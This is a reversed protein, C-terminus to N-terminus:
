FRIEPVAESFGMGSPLPWHSDGQGKGGHRFAEGPFATGFIGFFDILVPKFARPFCFFKSLKKWFSSEASRCGVYKIPAPAVHL